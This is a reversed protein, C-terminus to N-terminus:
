EIDKNFKELHHFDVSGLNFRLSYDKKGMGADASIFGLWYAKNETDIADFYNKNISYKRM